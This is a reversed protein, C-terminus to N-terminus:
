WRAQYYNGYAKDYSYHIENQVVPILESRAIIKREIRCGHKMIFGVNFDSGCYVCKSLFNYLVVNRRRFSNRLITFSNKRPKM